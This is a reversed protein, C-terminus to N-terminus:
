VERLMTGRARVCRASWRKMSEALAEKRMRLERMRLATDALVSRLVTVDRREAADRRGRPLLRIARMLMPPFSERPM